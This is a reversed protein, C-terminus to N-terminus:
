FKVLFVEFNINRDIELKKRLRSRSVKVSNSTQSLVSAIEKNSLGLRLLSCLKIESPTITPFKNTLNKTFNEHMSSFASNFKYWSKGDLKNHVNQHLRDMRSIATVTDDKLLEKIRSIEKGISDIFEHSEVLDVASKTLLEDKQKSIEDFSEKLLVASQVRAILEIPEIPKRIYDVAGIELAERLNDPSLMVGTAIIIPVEATEKNNRIQKILEIGTLGPMMWDTIILDLKKESAINIVENPNNTQLIDYNSLEKRVIDFITILCDISDDVTLITYRKM